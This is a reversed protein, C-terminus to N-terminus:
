AGAEHGHEESHHYDTAKATWTLDAPSRTPATRYQRAAEAIGMKPATPDTRRRHALLHKACRREAKTTRQAPLHYAALHGGAQVIAQGLATFAPRMQEILECMVQALASLGAIPDPKYTHTDTMRDHDSM